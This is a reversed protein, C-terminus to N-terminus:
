EPPNMPVRTKAEILLPEVGLYGVVVFSYTYSASLTVFKTLGVTEQVVTATVSAPDVGLLRSKFDAVVADDSVSVMTMLSRGTEELAFELSHKNWIFLGFEMIGTIILMLFPAILGFEAATAGTRDALIAASRRRAGAAIRPLRFKLM